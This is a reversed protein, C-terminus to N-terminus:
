EGLIGKIKKMLANEGNKSEYEGFVIYYSKPNNPKHATIEYAIGLDELNYVIGSRGLKPDIYIQVPEGGLAKAERRLEWNQVHVFASGGINKCQSPLFFATNAILVVCFFQQLRRLHRSNTKNRLICACAFGAPLLLYYFPSYRAWWSDTIALLLTLILLLNGTLLCFLFRDKKWLHAMAWALLGLSILLLGSFLPGFGGIRTDIIASVMFESPYVTFPLKLAPEKGSPRMINESRSFTARFLKEATSSKAFGASENNSIIDAKGEGALPYFPHGHDITNRLYSSSGWILVASFFVAAFGCLMRVATHMRKGREARLVLLGYFLVSFVGAYGLGTFKVGSCLLIGCVAAIWRWVRPAHYARDTLTVLATILLFLAAALVGDNYFSFLQPLTIPNCVTVGAIWFAQRRTFCHKQRLYHLLIGFLALMLQASLLKGSEVNGTVKYIAAAYMWAAKAYHDAWIAYGPVKGAFGARQLYADLSEYVPNWGEAMAGIAQKHYSTGDCTMDFLLVSLLLLLGFCCAFLLLGQGKQRTLGRGGTWAYVGLALLFGVPLTLINVTVHAIQGLAAVSIVCMLFLLSFVSSCYLSELSLMQNWARHVYCKM